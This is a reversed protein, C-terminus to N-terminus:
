RRISRPRAFAREGRLMLLAFAGMTALILVVAAWYTAPVVFEPRDFSMRRFREGWSGDGYYRAVWHVHWVYVVLLFSGAGIAAFAFRKARESFLWDLGLTLIVVLAPYAPLLFRGGNVLPGLDHSARIMDLRWFPLTLAVCAGLCLVAQRLRADRPDLLTRWAQLAFGVAALGGTIILAGPAYYVFKGRPAEYTFFHFWGTRYIDAFWARSSQYLDSLGYGDTAGTPTSTAVGSVLVEGTFSGYAVKSWAYWGLLPVALVGAARLASARVEARADRHIWWQAALAVVALPVLTLATSKVLVAVALVGALWLGQRRDPPARLIFLLQALVLSYLAIVGIDNSVLGSWYSIMPQTAVIGAVFLPRREGAFVQAALLWAAFVALAGLLASWTRVWLMRTPLAKGGTFWSLEDFIAGGYYYLPAHVVQPDRGTLTQDRWGSPLSGLRHLVTKPDGSFVRRPGQGYDDFRTLRVTTGYERSYLPKDPDIITGTSAVHDVYM